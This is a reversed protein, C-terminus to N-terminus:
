YNQMAEFRRAAERWAVTHQEASIGPVDIGGVAFLNGPIDDDAPSSDEYVAEMWTLDTGCLQPLHVWTWAEVPNPEIDEALGHMAEVDDALAAQRLLPVVTASAGFRDALNLLRTADDPVALSRAHRFDTEEGTLEAWALAADSRGLRAPRGLPPPISRVACPRGRLRRGM